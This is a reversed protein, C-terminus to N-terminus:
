QALIDIGFVDVKVKVLSLYVCKVVKVKIQISDMCTTQVTYFSVIYLYVFIM